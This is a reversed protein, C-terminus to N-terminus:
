QCKYWVQEMASLVVLMKLIYVAVTEGDMIVVSLCTITELPVSYMIWGSLCQHTKVELIAVQTFVSLM